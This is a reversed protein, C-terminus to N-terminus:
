RPKAPPIEETGSRTGEPFLEEVPPLVAVDEGDSGTPKWAKPPRGRGGGAADVRDLFGKDELDSLFGSTTSQGTKLRRRVDKATFPVPLPDVPCDVEGLLRDLFRRAPDSLSEGITRALPGSLLRAAIAYDAPEAILRGDQDTKRQRQHLLASSQVLALVMPYARRIEVRDAFVELVEALREAFPIVITRRELLRQATRHLAIVRPGDPQVKGSAHMALRRMITRTQSRREDTSLMICRNADEEFVRALTTSEVFAIPGDQEITVTQIEGDVKM